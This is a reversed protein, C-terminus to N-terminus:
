NGYDYERIDLEYRANAYDFNEQDGNYWTITQGDLSVTGTRLNTLDIVRM